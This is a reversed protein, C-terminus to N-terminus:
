LMTCYKPTLSKQVGFLQNSTGPKSPSAVNPESYMEMERSERTSPSLFDKHFDKHAKHSRTPHSYIM